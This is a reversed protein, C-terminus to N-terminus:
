RRDRSSGGGGRSGGGCSKWRKDELEKLKGRLQVYGVHLKGTRTHTYQLHSVYMIPQSSRGYSVCLCAGEFHDMMRQESDTISLFAGCAACVRLKQGQLPGGGGGM